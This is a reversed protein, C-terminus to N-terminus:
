PHTSQMTLSPLASRIEGVVNSGDSGMRAQRCARMRVACFSRQGSWCRRVQTVSPSVITM